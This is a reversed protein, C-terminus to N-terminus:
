ELKITIKVLPSTFGHKQALTALLRYLEPDNVCLRQGNEAWHLYLKEIRGSEPFAYVSNGKGDLERQLICADTLQTLQRYISCLTLYEGENLATRLIDAPHLYQDPQRVLIELVTLRAHTHRLGRSKLLQRATARPLAGTNIVALEPALAYPINM